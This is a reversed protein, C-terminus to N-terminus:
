NSYCLGAMGCIIRLLNVNNSISPKNIKIEDFIKKIINYDTVNFAKIFVRNLLIFEYLNKNYKFSDFDNITLKNKKITFIKFKTTDNLKNNFVVILVM